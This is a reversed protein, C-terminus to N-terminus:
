SKPLLRRPIFGFFNKSKTESTQPCEIMKRACDIDDNIFDHLFGDYPIDFSPVDARRSSFTSLNMFTRRGDFRIFSYHSITDIYVIEVETGTKQIQHLFDSLIKGSSRIYDCDKRTMFALSSVLDDSTMDALYYVLKLDSRGELMSLYDKVFRDSYAVGVEILSSEKILSSLDLRKSNEVINAIGANRVTESGAIENRVERFFVERQQTEYLIQFAALTVAAFGLNGLLLPLSGGLFTWDKWASVNSLVLLVLGLAVVSLAFFRSRIKTVEFPRVNQIELTM